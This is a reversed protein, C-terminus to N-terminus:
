GKKALVQAVYDESLWAARQSRAFDYRLSDKQAAAEIEEVTMLPEALRCKSLPVSVLVSVNGKVTGVVTRNDRGPQNYGNRYFTGFARCSNVRIETGAALKRGVKRSNHPELLILWDGPKADDPQMVGIEDGGKILERLEPLQSLRAQEIIEPTPMAFEASFRSSGGAYRTSGLTTIHVKSDETDFYSGMFDSDDYGNNEWTALKYKM